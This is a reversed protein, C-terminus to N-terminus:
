GARGAPDPGADRGDPDTATDPSEDDERRRRWHHDSEHFGAAFFAARVLTALEDSLADLAAVGGALRAQEARAAAWAAERELRQRADLAAVLEAEPGRGVYVCHQRGDRYVKRAYYKNRTSKRGQWSM